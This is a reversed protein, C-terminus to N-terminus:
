IKTAIKSNQDYKVLKGNLNFLDKLESFFFVNFTLKLLLNLISLLGTLFLVLQPEPVVVLAEGSSRLGLDPECPNLM